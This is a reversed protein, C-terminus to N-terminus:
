KKYIKSLTYSTHRYMPTDLKKNHTHNFCFMFLLYVSRVPLDIPVRNCDKVFNEFNIREDGLLVECARSPLRHFNKVVM